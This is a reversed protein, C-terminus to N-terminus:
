FRPYGFSDGLGSAFQLRPSNTISFWGCVLAVEAGFVVLVCLGYCRLVFLGVFLWPRRLVGLMPRGVTEMGVTPLPLFFRESHVSHGM